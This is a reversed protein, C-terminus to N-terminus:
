NSNKVTQVAATVTLVPSFLQSILNVVKSPQNAAANGFYLVDKDKIAFRQALFYTGTKMMNLHYVVPVENGQEDKVYRFVFIAAPDGSGPNTGGATAVAEALSVKSRAFAFQQVSGPSGLVSYTRPNNILMLRDGPYARVDLKPTDILDNIPIDTSEGQRIVRLVLDKANGRYGGALAIADSLTERNTQLLLRGPRVVEGSVIVTNTIPQQVNLTVQPNQSVGRLAGRIMTEVEGVTHGVVHLKGAYPIAIDGDDDVRNPPLKQAQVGPVAGAGATTASGGGAFLTVGAEYITIDLVDGPGVMDTPPPPLEALRTATAVTDAAPIDGATVVQVLQIPLANEPDTASREVQRGTPGSTPLTACGALSALLALCVSNKIPM